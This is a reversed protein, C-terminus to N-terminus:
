RKGYEKVGLEMEIKARAECKPCVVDTIVVKDSSSLEQLEANTKDLVAGCKCCSATIRGNEKKLELM